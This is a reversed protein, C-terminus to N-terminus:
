TEIQFDKQLKKIRRQLFEVVQIPSLNQKRKFFVVDEVDSLFGRHLFIESMVGFIYEPFKDGCDSQLKELAAVVKAHNAEIVEVNQQKEM